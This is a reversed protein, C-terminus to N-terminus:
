TVCPGRRKCSFAVLKDHGRDSCYQRQFGHAMVSRELFTAVEDKVFQPLDTGAEAPAFFTAACQQVLNYLATQESCHREYHAPARDQARQPQRGIAQM